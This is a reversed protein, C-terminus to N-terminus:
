LCDRGCKEGERGEEKEKIWGRGKGEGGFFFVFVFSWRCLLLGAEVVVGIRM